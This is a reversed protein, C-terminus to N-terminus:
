RPAIARRPWVKSGNRAACGSWNASTSRIRTLSSFPPAAEGSLACFAGCLKQLLPTLLARREAFKQRTLLRPFLARITPHNAIWEFYSNDSEFGLVEQLVAVCLVERDDFDPPPGRRPLLKGDCCKIGAETLADDLACYLVIVADEFTLTHTASM